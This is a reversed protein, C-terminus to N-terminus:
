QVLGSHVSLIFHCHHSLIIVSAHPPHIEFLPAIKKPNFSGSSLNTLILLNKLQTLITENVPNFSDFNTRRIFQFGGFRKM